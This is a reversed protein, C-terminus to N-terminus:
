KALYLVREKRVEPSTVSLRALQGTVAKDAFPDREDVEGPLVRELPFCLVHNKM